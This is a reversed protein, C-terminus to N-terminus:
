TIEWFWVQKGRKMYGATDSSGKMKIKIGDWIDIHDTNGWGNMIFIMGKKNKFSLINDNITGTFTKLKVGVGLLTPKRYFANALQQASRIHGPSHTNFKKSYHMCRKLTTKKLSVSSDELAQGMRMACQNGFTSRDCVYRRGVHNKWITSFKAM